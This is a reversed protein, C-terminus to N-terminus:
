LKKINRTSRPQLTTVKWCWYFKNQIASNKSPLFFFHRYTGDDVVIYHEDNIQYASSFGCGSDMTTVPGVRFIKEILPNRIEQLNEM